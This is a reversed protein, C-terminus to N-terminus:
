NTETYNAILGDPSFSTNSNPPVTEGALYYYSTPRDYSPTRRASLGQSVLTVICFVNLIYM